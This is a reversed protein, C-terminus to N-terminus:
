MLEAISDGFPATRRMEMESKARRGKCRTAQAPCLSREGFQTMVLGFDWSGGAQLERNCCVDVM